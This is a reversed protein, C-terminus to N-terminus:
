VDSAHPLSKPRRAPGPLSARTMALLTPVATRTWYALPFTLGTILMAALPRWETTDVPAMPAPAPPEASAQHQAEPSKGAVPAGAEGKPVSTTGAPSGVRQAEAHTPTKSPAALPPVPESTNGPSQTRADGLPSTVTKEPASPQASVPTESTAGRSRELTELYNTAALWYTQDSLGLDEAERRAIQTNVRDLTIRRIYWLTGAKTGDGDFFYLPRAASLSLEFNFRELHDRDISKLSVPLAVYRFGRQTAEAIFSLETQSSERLDLLTKYGKEALWDLGATSPIGGGALKLDVAAFRAIGPAGGSAPTPEPTGLSTGAL